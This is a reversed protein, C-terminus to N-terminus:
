VRPASGFQSAYPDQGFLQQSALPSPLQQQAFPLSGEVAQRGDSGASNPVYFSGLQQQRVESWQTTNKDMLGKLGPIQFLAGGAPRNLAPVQGQPAMSAMSAAAQQEFAKQQQLLAQQEQLLIELRSSQMQQQGTQAQSVPSRPMELRSEYESEEDQQVARAHRTKKAAARKKRSNARYLCFVLLGVLTILALGILIWARNDLGLTTNNSAPTPGPSSSEVIVAPTWSTSVYEGAAPRMSVLGERLDPYKSYWNQLAMHQLYDTNCSTAYCEQTIGKITKAGLTASSYLSGPNRTLDMELVQGPIGDIPEHCLRAFETTNSWSVTCECATASSSCAACASDDRVRGVMPNAGVKKSFENTFQVCSAPQSTFPPALCKGQAQAGAGHYTSATCQLATDKTLREVVFGKQTLLTPLGQTLGNSFDAFHLAGAAILVTLNPHADAAKEISEVMAQNRSTLIQNQLWPQAKLTNQMNQMTGIDGCAVVQSASAKEAAVSRLATMNGYVSVIYQALLQDQEPTADHMINCQDAINELGFVPRHTGDFFNRVYDDYNQAGPTTICTSPTLVRLVNKFLPYLTLSFSSSNMATVSPRITEATEKCPEVANDLINTFAQQLAAVEAPPLRLALSDQKSSPPYFGCHTMYSGVGPAEMSCPLEFYAVDACAIASQVVPISNDMEAPLIHSTGLLYMSQGNRTARWLMPQENSCTYLRRGDISTESHPEPAFALTELLEGLPSSGRSTPALALAAVVLALSPPPAM